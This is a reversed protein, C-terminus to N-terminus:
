LHHYNLTARLTSYFDDHLYWLLILLIRHSIDVYKRVYQLPVQVNEDVDTM